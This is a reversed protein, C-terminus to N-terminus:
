KEWREKIYVGIIAFLFFGHYLIDFFGWHLQAPMFCLFMLFTIILCALFIIIWLYIKM